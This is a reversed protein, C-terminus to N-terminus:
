KVNNAFNFFMKELEPKDSLQLSEIGAKEIMDKIIAKLNEESVGGGNLYKIDSPDFLWEDPINGNIVMMFKSAVTRPSWNNLVYRQADKGLRTRYEKDNILKIIEEKLKEPHCFVCPPIIKLNYYDKLHAAYYGGNIAPKGFFAAEAGFTAMPSDSYLEDIVFDCNQIEKLVVENPVNNLEKYDIDFGSDMLERIKARIKETGKHGFYSPAHLIKIKGDISEERTINAFKDTNFPIGIYLLSVFKKEHFYAQPPHDILVDIYKDMSKLQKKRQEALVILEDTSPKIGSFGGLAGGDLFPPRSGSGLHVNIIKKGLFKLIPYDYHKYFTSPGAFIFVNYNFIAWLFIPVRLILLIVKFFMRILINKDLNVQQRSYLFRYLKVLFNPVDDGCYKHKNHSLDIFVCDQGLEKFGKKLNSYYGSTESLGIFIKHKSNKKM